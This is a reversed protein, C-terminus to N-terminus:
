SKKNRFQVNTTIMSVFYLNYIKQSKFFSMLTIKQELNKSQLLYFYFELVM